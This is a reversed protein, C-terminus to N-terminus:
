SGSCPAEDLSAIIARLTAITEAQKARGVDPLTTRIVRVTGIVVLPVSADVIM